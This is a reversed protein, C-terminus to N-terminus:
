IKTTELDSFYLVTLFIPNVSCLCMCVLLGCGWGCGGSEEKWGGGEGRNGPEINEMMREGERWEEM